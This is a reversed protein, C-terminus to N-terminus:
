VPDWVRPAVLLQFNTPNLNSPLLEPYAKDEMLRQFDLLFAWFQVGYVLHDFFTVGAGAIYHAIVLFELNQYEVNSSM